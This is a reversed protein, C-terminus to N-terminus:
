QPREQTAPDGSKQANTTPEARETDPSWVVPAFLTEPEHLVIEADGM